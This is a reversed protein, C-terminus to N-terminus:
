QQKRRGRVKSHKPAIVEYPADESNPMGSEDPQSDYIVDSSSPGRAIANSVYKKLTFHFSTGVGVTSEVDISEGLKSIIQKAISLGLGTGGEKRSKDVKYFLM